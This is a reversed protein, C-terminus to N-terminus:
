RERKERERWGDVQARKTGKKKKVLKLARM